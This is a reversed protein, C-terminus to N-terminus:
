KKRQDGFLATLVAGGIIFFDSINFVISKLKTWKVQFSVYDVVYGRKIRDLTNSLAGGIVFAFGLKGATSRQKDSFAEIGLLAMFVTFGASLAAMLKQRSDFANLAVGRNHHKRILLRNHCVPYVRGEEAKEEIEQKIKSDLGFILASILGYLM